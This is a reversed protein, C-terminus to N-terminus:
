FKSEVHKNNIHLFHNIIQTKIKGCAMEYLNSLLKLIKTKKYIKQSVTMDYACLSLKSEKKEIRIGRLNRTSSRLGPSRTSHQTLTTLASMKAKSPTNPPIM